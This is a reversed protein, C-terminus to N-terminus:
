PNSPNTQKRALMKEHIKEVTKSATHIFLFPFISHILCALGAFFLKIGCPCAAKFHDLYTEGISAPHATFLKKM